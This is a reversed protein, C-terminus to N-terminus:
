ATDVWTDGAIANSPTVSGYWEVSAYGTPRATGATSGHNVFGKGSATLDAAAVYTGSHAHTTPSLSGSLVTGAARKAKFSLLDGSEDLWLSAQSAVLDADAPATNPVGQHLRKVGINVQDTTTTAVGQGIAV